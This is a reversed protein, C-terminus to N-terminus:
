PEALGTNLNTVKKPKIVLKKVVKVVKAPVQQEATVSSEPTQPAKKAIKVVKAPVPVPIEDSPIESISLEPTEITSIIPTSTTSIPTPVNPLAVAPTEVKVAMADKDTQLDARFAVNEPEDAVKQDKQLIFYGNLFSYTKETPTMKYKDDYIDSFKGFDGFAGVQGKVPVLGYRRALKNFHTFDVLYEPMSQNSISSFMISIQQGVPLMEKGSYQKTIEWIKIQGMDGSISQGKQLPELLAFVNSGIMTTGFFLGGDRLNQFVNNLLNTLITENGTFYHLAFQCSVLDFWSQSHNPLLFYEQLKQSETSKEASTIAGDGNNLYRSADANFFTVKIPSDKYKKMRSNAERINGLSKEIGVVESIMPKNKDKGIWKHIDGGQGSGIDLLRVVDSKTKVYSATAQLMDRKIDNHFERMNATLAKINYDVKTYYDRPIHEKGTIMSETIPSVILNWNNKAVELNNPLKLDTKDDRFRIPQWTGSVVPNKQPNTVDSVWIFEIVSNDYIIHREEDTTRVTGDDEVPLMVVNHVGDKFPPKATFKVLEKQRQKNQIFSYLDLAKYQRNDILIPAAPNTGKPSPYLIDKGNSDKRFMVLFDNSLKDSPKWKLNEFWKRSKGPAARPYPGVPTFVIGDLDYDWDKQLIVENPWLPSKLDSAVPIILPWHEPAIIDPKQDSDGSDISYYEKGRIEPTEGEIVKSGTEVFDRIIKLRQVLGMNANTNKPDAPCVMDRQSKPTNYQTCRLDKGKHFLTDFLLVAYNGNKLKVLETDFLNGLQDSVLGTGFIQMRNNILYMNGQMNRNSGNYVFLLNRKGDAKPTALKNQIPLLGTKADPLLQEVELAVLDMGIFFPESGENVLNTYASLVENGESNSVLEFTENYVKLLDKLNPGIKTVLQEKLNTLRAPNVNAGVESRIQLNPLYELEIEYFEPQKLVKSGEFTKGTAAKVVTLDWRIDGEIWSYRKKYRYYKDIAQNSIINAIRDSLEKNIPTELSSQIRVDYEKMDTTVEKQKTEFTALNTNIKNFRCFQQIANVGTLRVRTGKLGGLNSTSRADISIDLQLEEIPMPPKGIENQYRNKLYTIVRRFIPMRFKPTFEKNLFTGLRFEVENINTIDPNEVLSDLHEDIMSNFTHYFLADGSQRRYTNETM